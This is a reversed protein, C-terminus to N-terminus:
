LKIDCDPSQEGNPGPRPAGDNRPAVVGGRRKLFLMSMWPRTEFPLRLCPVGIGDKGPRRATGTWDGRAVETWCASEASVGVQLEGRVVMGEGRRLVDEKMEWFAGGM